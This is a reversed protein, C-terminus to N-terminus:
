NLGMGAGGFLEALDEAPIDEAPTLGPVPAPEAKAPRPTTKPKPTSTSREMSEASGRPDAGDGHGAAQSLTRVGTRLAEVIAARRRFKNTPLGEIWAFLEDGDERYVRAQLYRLNEDDAM